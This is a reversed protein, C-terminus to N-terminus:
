ALSKLILKRGTTLFRCPLSATFPVQQWVKQFMAQRFCHRPVAKMRLLYPEETEKCNPCGYTTAIYEVRELAAPTYVIETRIVETGVAVMETGCQICHRDEESLSDVVVTRKPLNSFREEITPKAKRKKTHESVHIFEEPDPEIVLVPAEQGEPNLFDFLSLQGADPVRGKESSTGYIKDNLYQILAKQDAITADRKAIDELYKQILANQATITQNLQIIMDKLEILQLNITDSNM